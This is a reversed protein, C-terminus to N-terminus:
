AYLPLTDRDALPLSRAQDMARGCARDRDQRTPGLLPKELTGACCLQQRLEKVLQLPGCSSLSAGIGDKKGPKRCEGQSAPGDERRSGGKQPHVGSGLRGLRFGAIQVHPGAYRRDAYAQVDVATVHGHVAFRPQRNCTFKM